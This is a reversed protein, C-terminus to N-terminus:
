SLYPDACPAMQSQADGYYFNNSVEGDRYTMLSLSQCNSFKAEFGLSIPGLTYTNLFHYRKSAADALGTWRTVSVSDLGKPNFQLPSVCLGLMGRTQAVAEQAPNEVPQSLSLYFSAREFRQVASNSGPVTYVPTSNPAQSDQGWLYQWYQNITLQQPYNPNNTVVQYAKSHYVKFKGEIFELVVSDGIADAVSLHVKCEKDLSDPVLQSVLEIDTQSFYDAVQAATEFNDLVFQGWRLIGLKPTATTSPDPGFSVDSDMLMNISVGRENIGDVNSYGRTEDGMFVGISDYQACWKTQQKKNVGLRQRERKSLGKRKAGKPLYILQVTQPIRWDMNRGVVSYDEVLNNLIRTCM